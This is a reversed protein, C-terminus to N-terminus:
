GGANEEAVIKDLLTQAEKTIEPFEANNIISELVGKAQFNEGQAYEARAVVLFAKAKWYNYTPFTNQLYLGADKADNYRGQDYFILTIMYQSRAGYETKNEQEVQKFGALADALKNQNYLSIAIEMQARERTIANLQPNDAIPKLVREAETHNGLAQHCAAIGFRAQTKNEVKEATQELLKYLNLATQYNQQDYKIEAAELLAINTFTNKPKTDYVKSYDSLANDFKGLEKNSRARFLLSEHYNPGNPFDNIYSTFQGIASNFNGAYYRDLGTNFYLDALNENVDPNQSKYQKFLKDYEKPDLLSALNELAIQAQEQDFGYDLVVKKFNDIAGKADNTLYSALALRNYAGPALPSRPYSTVLMKAYKKTQTYDKIWTLYIESVRDLADDRLESKSYTNVLKGFSAVAEQYKGQRYSGEAIQYMAYDKRTYNFDAVRSYYTNAKPYNRKLFLCDGARLYADVMYKVEAQRGAASIFDEFNKLAADYKKAKFNCWGLGYTAMTYLESKRANPMTLFTQYAKAAVDYKEERFRSEGYWYQADLAMNKDFANVVAKTFHTSAEEYRGREYLRTGYYFCATQYAKRQRDTNLPVSELYTVAQKYNKSYFLLEGTLSRVEPIYEANPYYKELLQLAKYAEEYHKTTYSLKAYQYLADQKIVANNPEKAKAAKEFAVRANDLSKEELFCFGLYYSAIQTLSDREQTLVKGYLPIADKYQNQKYHSQAYRFYGGRNLKGANDVYQKFFSSAKPYDNKEYSANAVIFYIEADKKAAQRDSALDDALLFLEGYRKLKLMCNALYTRIESKYKPSFELEKFADYALGYDKSQYLMIADYYRADEAFPSDTEKVQKFLERATGYDNNMFHSYALLFNAEQAYTPNSGTAAGYLRLPEAADSYKKREFYYKGLYYHADLWKSNEPFGSIFAKLLPETDYRDLRYACVSQYFRANANLENAHDNHAYGKAHLFREFKEQAAGYKEKEYLELADKYIRNPEYYAPLQAVAQSLGLISIAIIALLFRSM